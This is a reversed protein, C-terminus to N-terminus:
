CGWSTFILGSATVVSTGRDLRRGLRTVAKGLLHGIFLGVLAGVLVAGTVCVGYLGFGSQGQALFRTSVVYAAIGVVLAMVLRLAVVM